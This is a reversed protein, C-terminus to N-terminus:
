MGVCDHVGASYRDCGCVCMYVRARAPTLSRNIVHWVNLIDDLAKRIGTAM